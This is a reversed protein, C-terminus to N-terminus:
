LWQFPYFPSCIAYNQHFLTSNEPFISWPFIWTGLNSANKTHLAQTTSLFRLHHMKLSPVTGGNQTCSRQLRPFLSIRNWPYFRPISSISVIADGLILCGRFKALKSTMRTRLLVAGWSTQSSSINGNCVAKWSLPPVEDFLWETGYDSCYGVVSQFYRRVLVRIGMTWACLTSFRKLSRQYRLMALVLWQFPCFACSWIAWPVSRLWSRILCM